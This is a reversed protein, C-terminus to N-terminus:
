FNFKNLKENASSDRIYTMIQNIYKHGVMISVVEVQTKEVNLQHDIFAYRLSHTNTKYKRLLFMCTAKSLNVNAYEQINPKIINILTIIDFSIISPLFIFRDKGDKRKSIKITIQTEHPNILFLKFGKIAESIRCGNRLQILSICIYILKDVNVIFNDDYDSIITNFDQILKTKIDVYNIGRDFGKKM